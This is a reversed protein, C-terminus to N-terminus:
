GWRSRSRWRPMIVVVVGDTLGPYKWDFPQHDNREVLLGATAPGRWVRYDNILGFAVADRDFVEAGGFFRLIKVDPLTIQQEHADAMTGPSLLESGPVHRVCPGAQMRGRELEDGLAPDGRQAAVTVAVGRGARDFSDVERHVHEGHVSSPM